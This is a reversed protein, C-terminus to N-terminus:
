HVQGIPQEQEAAAAFVKASAEIDCATCWMSSDEGWDPVDNEDLVARQKGSEDPQLTALVEVFLQLTENSGCSPCRYQQM